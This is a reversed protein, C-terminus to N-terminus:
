ASSAGRTTTTQSRRGAIARYGEPYGQSDFGITINSAPEIIASLVALPLVSIAAPRGEPARGVTLRIEPADLFRV